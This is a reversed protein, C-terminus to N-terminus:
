RTTRCSGGRLPGTRVVHHDGRRRRARVEGGLQHARLDGSGDYNDFRGSISSRFIRNKVELTRFKLPSFIVDGSMSNGKRVFVPSSPSARLIPPDIPSTWLFRLPYDRGTSQLISWNLFATGAAM